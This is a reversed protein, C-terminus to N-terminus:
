TAGPARRYNWLGIPLAMEKLVSAWTVPAPPQGLAFPHQCAKPTARRRGGHDRKAAARDVLM